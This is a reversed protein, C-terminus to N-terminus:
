TRKTQVKPGQCLRLQGFRNRPSFIKQPFAMELEVVFDNKLFIQKKLGPVFGLAQEGAPHNIPVWAAAPTLVENRTRGACVCAEEVVSTGVLTRKNWQCM